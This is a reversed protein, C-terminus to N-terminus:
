RARKRTSRAGPCRNEFDDGLQELATIWLRGWWTTGFRESLQIM